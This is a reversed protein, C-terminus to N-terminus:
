KKKFFNPPLVEQLTEAELLKKLDLEVKYLNDIAKDVANEVVNLVKFYFNDPVIEEIVEECGCDCEIYTKKYNKVVLEDYNQLALKLDKKKRIGNLYGDVIEYINLLADFEELNVDITKKM